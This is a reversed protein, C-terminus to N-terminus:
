CWWAMLMCGPPWCSGSIAHQQDLPDRAKIKDLDLQRSAPRLIQAATTPNIKLLPMFSGASQLGVRLNEPALWNDQDIWPGLGSTSRAVSEIVCVEAAHLPLALPLMLSLVTLWYKM